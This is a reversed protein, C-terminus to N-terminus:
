VIDRNRGVLWGVLAILLGYSLLVLMGAWWELLDFGTFGGVIANSANNPTYAVAGDLGTLSLGGSLLVDGVFIYVVAVLIAAIQHRLLIGLAVGIVGWLAIGPIGLVLSRAVDANGLRLEAGRALIVPAAVAVTAVQAVLGYLLGALAAVVMKAIAVRGRSPTALFTQTATGHRRDVAGIIVGLVLVLLYGAQYGAGYAAQAGAIEQLGPSAPVGAGFEQGAFLASPVVNLAVLGLLGLLLGWWLRTTRLKLLESRILRSM